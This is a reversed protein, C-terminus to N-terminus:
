IDALVVVAARGVVALAVALSLSISLRVQLSV